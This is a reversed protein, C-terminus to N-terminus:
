NTRKVISVQFPGDSSTFDGTFMWQSNTVVPAEGTSVKPLALGLQVGKDALRFKFVGYIVNAVEGIAGTVKSDVEIFDKKYFRKLMNFITDKPFVVALVASPNEKSGMEILATVDGPPLAEVAKFNGKVDLAFMQSFTKSVAAEVDATVDQNM